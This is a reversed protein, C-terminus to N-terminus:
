IAEMENEINELDLFDQIKYLETLLEKQDSESLDYPLAGARTTNLTEIILDRRYIMSDRYEDPFIALKNEKLWAKLREDTTAHGSLSSIWTSTSTDFSYTMNAFKIPTRDAYAQGRSLRNTAAMQRRSPTKSNGRCEPGMGLALSVPDKLKRGCKLCRDNKNRIMTKM